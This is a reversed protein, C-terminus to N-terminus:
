CVPAGATMAETTGTAAPSAAKAGRYGGEFFFQAGRRRVPSTRRRSAPRRHAHAHAAHRPTTDAERPRHHRVDRDSGIGCPAAAANPGPASLAVAGGPDGIMPTAAGFGLAGEVILGDLMDAVRFAGDVVRHLIWTM